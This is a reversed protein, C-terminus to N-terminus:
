PIYHRYKRRRRRESVSQQARELLDSALQRAGPAHGFKERYERRGVCFITYTARGSQLAEAVFWEGGLPSRVRTGERPVRSLYRSESSDPFIFVCNFAAARPNV